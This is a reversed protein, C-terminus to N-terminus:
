MARDKPVLVRTLLHMVGNNEEVNFQSIVSQGGNEDLLLINRNDDIRATVKSGALTLLSAEGHGDSILKTLDKITYHGPLIHYSLLNILEYKHAPKMLTDLRSGLQQKFASDPPALLTLPGRSKLTGVMSAARVAALFVTHTKSATLNEVFDMASNVPAGNIMTIKGTSTNARVSDQYSSGRPPTTQACAVGALLLLIITLFNKM